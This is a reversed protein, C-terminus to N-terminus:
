LVYSANNRGLRLLAHWVNPTQLTPTWPLHIYGLNHAWPVACVTSGCPRLGLWGWQHPPSAAIPRRDRAHVTWKWKRVKSQIYGAVRGGGHREGGWPLRDEVVRQSVTALHRDGVGGRGHTCPICTATGWLVTVWVVFCHAVVFFKPNVLHRGGGWPFSLPHRVVLPTSPVQVAVAQVVHAVSSTPWLDAPKWHTIKSNHQPLTENPLSLLPKCTVMDHDVGDELHQTHYELALSIKWIKQGLLIGDIRRAKRTARNHEMAGPILLLLDVLTGAHLGQQWVRVRKNTADWMNDNSDGM